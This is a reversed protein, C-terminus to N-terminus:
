WIRQLYRSPDSLNVKPKQAALGDYIRPDWRLEQCWMISKHQGPSEAHQRPTDPRAVKTWRQMALGAMQSDKHAPVPYFPSISCIPCPLYECAVALDRTKKKQSKKIGQTQKLIVPAVLAGFTQECVSSRQVATHFM